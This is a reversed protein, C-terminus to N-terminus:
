SVLTGTHEKIGRMGWGRGLKKKRFCVLYERPHRAYEWPHRASLNKLDIGDPVKSEL